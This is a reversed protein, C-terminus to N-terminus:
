SKRHINRLVELSSAVAARETSSSVWDVGRMELCEWDSVSHVGPKLAPRSKWSLSDSLSHEALGFVLTRSTKLEEIDFRASIAPFCLMSGKFLWNSCQFSTFQNWPLTDYKIGLFFCAEHLFFWEKWGWCSFHVSFGILLFFIGLILVWNFAWIGVAHRFEVAAGLQLSMQINYSM